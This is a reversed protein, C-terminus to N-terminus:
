AELAPSPAGRATDGRRLDVEALAGFTTELRSAVVGAHPLPFVPPAGDNAVTSSPPLPAADADAGADFLSGGGGARLVTSMFTLAEATEGAVVTEADGTAAGSAPAHLSGGAAGTAAAVEVPGLGVGGLGIAHVVPLVAPTRRAAKPSGVLRLM